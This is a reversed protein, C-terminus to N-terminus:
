YYSTQTTSFTNWYIEPVVMPVFNAGDFTHMKIFLNLVSNRFDCFNSNMIDVEHTSMIFLFNLTYHGRLAKRILKIFFADIEM